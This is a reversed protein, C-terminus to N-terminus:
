AKFWRVMITEPFEYEMNFLVWKTKTSKRYCATHFNRYFAVSLKLM